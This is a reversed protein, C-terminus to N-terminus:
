LEGMNLRKLKQALSTNRKETVTPNQFINEACDTSSEKSSLNKRNTSTIRFSINTVKRPESKCTQWPCAKQCTRIGLSEKKQQSRGGTCDM